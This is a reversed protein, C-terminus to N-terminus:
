DRLTILDKGRSKSINGRETSVGECSRVFCTSPVASRTALVFRSISLHFASNYSEGEFVNCGTEAIPVWGNLGSISSRAKLDSDKKDGAELQDLGALRVM